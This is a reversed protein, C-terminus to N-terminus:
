RFQNCWIKWFLFWISIFFIFTGFGYTAVIMSVLTM